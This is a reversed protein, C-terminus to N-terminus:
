NFCSVRDFSVAVWIKQGTATTFSGLGVPAIIQNLEIIEAAGLQDAHAM